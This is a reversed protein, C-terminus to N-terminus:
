CVAICCESFNETYAVQCRHTYGCDNAGTYKRGDSLGRVVTTRTNDDQEHDRGNGTAKRGEAIGLESGPHRNGATGVSIRIDGKPLDNRPYYSPREDEFICDTVYNNRNRPATIEVVEQFAHSNMKWG